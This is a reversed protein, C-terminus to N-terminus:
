FYWQYQYKPLSHRTSLKNISWCIEEGLFDGYEVVNSLYEGRYSNISMDVLFQLDLKHWSLKISKNNEIKTLYWVEDNVTRGMLEIETNYITFLSKFSQPSIIKIEEGDNIKGLKNKGNYIIIKKFSPKSETVYFKIISGYSIFYVYDKFTYRNIENTTKVNESTRISKLTFHKNPYEWIGFDIKQVELRRADRELGILYIYNENEVFKVILHYKDNHFYKELDIKVREDKLLTLSSGWEGRRVCDFSYHAKNKIVNLIHLGYNAYFTPAGNIRYYLQIPITFQRIEKLTSEKEVRIQEIDKYMGIFNTVRISRLLYELCEKIKENNTREIYTTMKTIIEDCLRKNADEIESVNLRNLYILYALNDIYKDEDFKFYERPLLNHEFYLIYDHDFHTNYKMCFNRACTNCYGVPDHHHVPCHEVNPTYRRFNNVTRIREIFRLIFTLDNLDKTKYKTVYYEYQGRVILINKIYSKIDEPYQISNFFIEHRLHIHSYDTSFENCEICYYNM